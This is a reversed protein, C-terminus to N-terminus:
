NMGPWDVLGIGEIYENRDEVRDEVFIKRTSFFIKIFKLVCLHSVYARIFRRVDYGIRIM